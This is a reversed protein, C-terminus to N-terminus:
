LSKLDSLKYYSEDDAALPIPDLNIQTPYGLVTDFSLNEVTGGKPRTSDILDFFAEIKFINPRFNAPVDAGSDVYKVSTLAGDRVELRMAKTFELPCFCSRQLTYSYTSLNKSTWLNRGELTSSAPACAMLSGAILGGAILMPLSLIRMGLSYATCMFFLLFARSGLAELM